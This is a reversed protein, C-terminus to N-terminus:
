EKVVNLSIRFVLYSSPSASTGSNIAGGCSGVVLLGWGLALPLSLFTSLFWRLFETVSENM